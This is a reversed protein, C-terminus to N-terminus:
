AIQTLLPQLANTFGGGLLAKTDTCMQALRAQEEPPADQVAPMLDGFDIEINEGLIIKDVCIKTSRVEAARSDNVSKESEFLKSQTDKAERLALAAVFVDEKATQLQLECGQM